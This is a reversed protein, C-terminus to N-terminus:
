AKIDALPTTSGAGNSLDGVSTASANYAQLVSLLVNSTNGATTPSGSALDSATTAVAQYHIGPYKLKNRGHGLLIIPQRNISHTWGVGCDTSAYIITSDLLTGGTPDTAALLKQALKSLQEMCFVV